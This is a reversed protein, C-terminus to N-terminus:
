GVAQRRVYAPGDARLQATGTVGLLRLTTVYEESLLSLARAVGPQGAAALGYLYARGAAAADAGLGVAAAIDGGRRVGSDVLVTVDGGLRDRVAPLLDLGHAARDLQRGGHNSLHIGDIGLARARAADEAGIPGKLLLPGPWRRRLEPLAEWTVSPDFQGSIEAIGSDSRIRGAPINAFGIAPGRLAGLWYGPRTAIGAVAGPTLAPPITFGNRLDRLRRGSVPTDVAIELVRYGCGRARDVMALSLERDRWLYLQFWLDPHGTAAVDEIATTAMTSLTYPVGAAMAARAVALEGEPHFMRTYGTPALVLPLAIPRGFLTTGPDTASVDRLVASTFRCGQFATMNDRATTEGDAGGELYDFVPRPLRRAANRALDGVCVSRSTVRTGRDLPPLRFRLLSRVEAAKM